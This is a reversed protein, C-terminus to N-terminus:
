KPYKEGETLAMQKTSSDNTGTAVFKAMLATMQKQQKVMPLMLRKLTKNNAEVAANVYQHDETSAETIM